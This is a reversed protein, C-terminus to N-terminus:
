MLWRELGIAFGGHPPMGHAFAQLYPELPASERGRAAPAAVSDDYCHLRHGGTVLETGRFLLAFSRSSGPRTDDPSPYFPRKVMPYGTVFLFESNHERAAWAGLWREGEPSLDPQGREHEGLAEAVMAQADTFHLEPVRPLITPMRASLLALEPECTAVA